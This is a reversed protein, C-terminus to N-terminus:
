FYTNYVPITDPCTIACNRSFLNLVHALKESKSCLLDIEFRYNSIWPDTHKDFFTNYILINELCSMGNFMELVHRVHDSDPCLLELDSESYSHTPKLVFDCCFETEARLSKTKQLNSVMLEKWAHIPSFLDDTILEHSPFSLDFGNDKFCVFPIM